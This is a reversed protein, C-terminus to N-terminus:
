SAITFALHQCDAGSIHLASHVIRWRRIKTLFFVAYSICRHSSNLRTSKRDQYLDFQQRERGDPPLLSEAGPPELEAYGGATRRRVDAHQITALECLQTRERELGVFHQLDQQALVWARVALREM